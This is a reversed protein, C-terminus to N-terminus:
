QQRTRQEFNQLQEQYFSRPLFQKRFSIMFTRGLPDLEDSSFGLPAHGDAATVKPRANFLNGVEFRVSSGRLWPHKAVIALDQGVNAFFRLDFTAVPSFHLPGNVATQVNTASRWNFGVRAGIGNNFWGAQAQVLHRPQGGWQGVAAGHLYDLEPLGPEIVARDVLTITDTLSFTLRGHNAYANALTGGGTSSAASLKSDPVDIGAQKAKQVLEEVRAPSATRSRLPKTFDFGVRLSDRRASDFNVPRLDASILTGSPDRVFRDPFAAEIEPSATISSTPRDIKMHVYDARLKFDVKEFPQWDASLKWINRRDSRLDSNGGTIVNTHAMVGSSFDFLATGPTGLIPDGLQRISPADEEHDWSAILNLREFPSWNAGAGFTTLTGFHSITDIEANANLTLNGLASFARERHSIPVDFSIAASGSTRNTSHPAREGIGSQDVDLVEGSGGIRLTTSAKGAPLDFLPGNVTANVDTSALTSRADDPAFMPQGNDANTDFHQLDANGTVNWHWNSRDWNLVTGLHLSDTTTHRALKNPLQVTVDPLSNGAEHEAEANFTADIGGGLQRALTAGSRIRFQSPITSSSSTTDLSEQRAFERQSVGLIDNGGVHLNITTRRDQDLQIRTLDGSGGTFGSKSATNGAVQATTSQFHPRLVINVVKQDPRYGYKLAVEEPLIDVRSIAEIPIDRLERYSSVKHGNLLVLPPAGSVDRASSIQPALADLLEDFNTAGTARVDRSRLVNEPPIDGVVAGRPPKGTVVIEDEDTDAAAPAAQRPSAKSPTSAPPSQAAAPVLPM